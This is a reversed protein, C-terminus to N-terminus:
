NQPRDDDIYNLSPLAYNAEVAEFLLTETPARHMTGM